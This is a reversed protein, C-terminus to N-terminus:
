RSHPKPTTRPPFNVAARQTVPAASVPPPTAQSAPGLNHLQGACGDLQRLLDDLTASARDLLSALHSAATGPVTEAQEAAAAFFSALRVLPGEQGDVVQHLLSAAHAFTEAGRMRDSLVQLPVEGTQQAASTAQPLAADAALAPDLHVHYGAATLMRAAHSAMQNERTEGMDWPLRFWFTRISTEIQFGAHRLLDHALRDGGEATVNGTPDRTITVTPLPSPM